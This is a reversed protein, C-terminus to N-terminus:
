KLISKTVVSSPLEGSSTEEDHEGEQQEDAPKEEGDEKKGGQEKEGGEGARADPYIQNPYYELRYSDYLTHIKASSNRIVQLFIEIFIIVEVEYFNM